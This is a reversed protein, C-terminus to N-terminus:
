IRGFRGREGRMEMAVRWEYGREKKKRERYGREERGQSSPTCKHSLRHCELLLSSLSSSTEGSRM